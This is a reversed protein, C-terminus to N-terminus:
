SRPNLKLSLLLTISINRLSSRTRVGISPNGIIQDQPHNTVFKWEKPLKQNSEGQELQPPPSHAFHSKEKKSDIEEEQQHVKDDIQFRGMSFDLGVDDNVNERRELSENSEDFVVHASEEVVMTKKNFVRYAKSSSSYGLFIGVNSKADFKGLNDKTNLIFCKSGFVKFYSINPKKNKWLEYSTKDLSSRILVRYLIYCSTNVAEARFYNPLNNEHLITRAMEQLTRNKREVVGNQQPTRPTSFTHEIGQEDCFSDFEVNEFERGHDSRICSITFGKENQIKRCLKSFEHFVDNKYALFLVWTYQSFDDVIVFAYSKGGLSTTRSPGFLDMHLLELPRSTSIFNKNKFSTKILQGMQCAECVKDKKFSIKPLGRVLENKNLQTILNM